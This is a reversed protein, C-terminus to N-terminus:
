FNMDDEITALLNLYSQYREANIFDNRVAEVVACEPEHDHTCTNFRCTEAYPLFDKFYHGLDQKRIGYPDLERIGPTDVVFTDEDVKILISTVTTHKGKSTSSSILGIKLKVDSYLENLLSSKGVGSQGSFLNVKGKLALRMEKIGTKNIVSTELVQYGIARYLRIWKRFHEPTDLDTKNIIIIPVLHSSEACVILRDILRNNFKPAKCSSVIILNDVNTAIIQELREGRAGSGKISPAKRSIYNERPLIKYIVGSGDQNIDYEVKDGVAVIDVVYLKDRKLAYEKQFKGRLSCRIEEGQESIM